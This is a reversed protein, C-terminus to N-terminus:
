ITVIFRKAAAFKELFTLKRKTSAEHIGQQCRKHVPTEVYAM